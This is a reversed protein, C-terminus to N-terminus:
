NLRYITCNCGCVVEHKQLPDKDGQIDLCCPASTNPSIEYFLFFDITIGDEDGCNYIYISVIFLPHYQWKLTKQLVYEVLYYTYTFHLRRAREQLLGSIDSWEGPVGWKWEPSALLEVSGNEQDLSDVWSFHTSKCWM